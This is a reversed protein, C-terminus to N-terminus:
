PIRASSIRMSAARTTAMRREVNLHGDAQNALHMFVNTDLLYIM